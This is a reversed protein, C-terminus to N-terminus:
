RGFAAIVSPGLGEFLSIEGAYHSAFTSKLSSAVRIHLEQALEPKVLFHSLPWGGVGWTM